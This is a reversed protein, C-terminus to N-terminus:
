LNVFQTTTYKESTCLLLCNSFRNRSLEYVNYIDWYQNATYMVSSWANKERTIKSHCNSCLLQCNSMKNNSRNGDKHHFERSLKSVSHRCYACKGNQNNTVQSKVNPSFSRRKKRSNELLLISVLKAVLIQYIWDYFGATLSTTLPIGLSTTTDLQTIKEFSSSM